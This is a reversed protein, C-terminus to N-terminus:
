AQAQEDRDLKYSVTSFPSPFREDWDAVAAEAAKEQNVSEALKHALDRVSERRFSLEKALQERMWALRMEVTVGDNM